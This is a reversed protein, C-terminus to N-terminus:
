RLLPALSYLEDPRTFLDYGLKGSVLLVLGGLLVRLENGRIRSGAKSGLQAGVVGGVILVLALVIDVTQNQWAQMFTVNAGVFIIQFLSTGIVVATPM